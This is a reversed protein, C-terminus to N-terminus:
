QNKCDTKSLNSQVSSHFKLYQVKFIATKQKFKSASVHVKKLFFYCPIFVPSFSKWPLKHCSSFIAYIFTNWNSIKFTRFFFIWFVPFYMSSQFLFHAKNSPFSVKFSINKIRKRETIKRHPRKEKLYAKQGERNRCECYSLGKHSLASINSLALPYTDRSAQTNEFAAVLYADRSNQILDKPMWSLWYFGM